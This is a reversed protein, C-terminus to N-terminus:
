KKFTELYDIENFNITLIREEDEQNNIVKYENDYIIYNKFSIFKGYDRDNGILYIQGYIIQNRNKLYAQSYYTNDYILKILDSYPTNVTNNKEDMFNNKIKKIICNKLLLIIVTLILRIVNVNLNILYNIRESLFHIIFSILMSFIATAWNDELKANFEISYFYLILIGPIFYIVLDNILSQINSYSM